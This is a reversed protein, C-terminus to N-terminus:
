RQRRKSASYDARRLTTRSCPLLYCHSVDFCCRLRRSVRIDCGTDRLKEAWDHDVQGSERDVTLLGVPVNTSRVELGHVFKEINDDVM